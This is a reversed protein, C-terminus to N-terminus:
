PARPHHPQHAPALTGTLLLYCMVKGRDVCMGFCTACLAPAAQGKM